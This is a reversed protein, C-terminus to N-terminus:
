EGKLLDFTKRIGEPTGVVVAVDGNLLKFDPKPSPITEGDRVVAVISVGTERRVAIEQITHDVCEWSQKIPVWDITLGDISQQLSGVNRTVEVGGLLEALVYGDEEELRMSVRCSDPDNRDYVLLDRRGNHHTIVGLREGSKTAFEHRIGVGPLQTEEVKTM